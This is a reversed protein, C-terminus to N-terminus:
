FIGNVFQTLDCLALFFIFRYLVCLRLRSLHHTLILMKLTKAKNGQLGHVPHFPLIIFFFIEKIIEKSQIAPIISHGSCKDLSKTYFSSLSGMLQQLFGESARPSPPIPINKCHLLGVSWNAKKRLWWSPPHLTVRPDLFGPRFRWKAM